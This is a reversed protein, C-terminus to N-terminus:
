RLRRRWQSDISMLWLFYLKSFKKNCFQRLLYLKARWYVFCNIFKRKEVSEQYIKAKYNPIKVILRDSLVENKITQLQTTFTCDLLLKLIVSLSSSLVLTGLENETLQSYFEIVSQLKGVLIGLWATILIAVVQLFHVFLVDNTARLTHFAECEVSIPTMPLKLKRPLVLQHETGNM